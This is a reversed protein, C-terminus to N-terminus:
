DTRTLLQLYAALIFVVEWFLTGLMPHFIFYSSYIELVQQAEDRKGSLGEHPVLDLEAAPPQM